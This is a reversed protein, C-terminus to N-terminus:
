QCALFQVLQRPLGQRLSRGHRQDVGVDGDRDVGGHGGVHQGVVGGGDSARHLRARDVLDGSGLTISVSCLLSPPGRAARTAGGRSASPRSNIPWYSPEPKLSGGDIALRASPWIIWSGWIRNRTAAAM